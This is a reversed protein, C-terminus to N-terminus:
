YDAREDKILSVIKLACGKVCAMEASVCVCVCEYVFVITNEEKHEINDRVCTPM